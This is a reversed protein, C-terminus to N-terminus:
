NVRLLLDKIVNNGAEIAAVQIEDENDNLLKEAQTPTLKIGMDAAMDLVDTRIWAVEALTKVGQM